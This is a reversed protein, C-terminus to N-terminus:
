SHLSPRRLPLSLELDAMEKDMLPRAEDNLGVSANAAFLPKTLITRLLMHFVVVATLWVTLVLFVGQFLRVLSTSDFSTDWELWDEIGWRVFYLAGFVLLLVCLLGLVIVTAIWHYGTHSALRFLGSQWLLLGPALLLMGMFFKLMNSSTVTDTSWYWFADDVLYYSLVYLAIGVFFQGWTIAISTAPNYFLDDRTPKSELSSM